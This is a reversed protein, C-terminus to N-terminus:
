RQVGRGRKRRRTSLRGSIFRTVREASRSTGRWRGQPLMSEGDYPLSRNEKLQRSGAGEGDELQEIYRVYEAIIQTRKGGATKMKGERLPVRDFRPM